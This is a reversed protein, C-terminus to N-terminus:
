VHGTRGPSYETALWPNPLVAGVPLGGADRPRPKAWHPLRRYGTLQVPSKALWDSLPAVPLAFEEDDYDPLLLVALRRVGKPWVIQLRRILAGTARRGQDDARRPLESVNIQSGAVVSRSHLQRIDSVQFTRPDPPFGLDFCAAEPELIRAVFRDDGSRFRAVSGAVSVPDASIHAAWTVTGFVEPVIEDQILVQRGILAAGRRISGAPRGYAASMDLIACKWRTSIRSGIIPVRANPLQNRGNIVLTNHGTAQTRYYRWRQGSQSDDGHDFYGPLDYNDSGLDM